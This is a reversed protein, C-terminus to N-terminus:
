QPTPEKKIYTVIAYGSGAAIPLLEGQPELSHHM